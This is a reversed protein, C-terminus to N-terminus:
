LYLRVQPRLRLELPGTRAELTFRVPVAPVSQIPGSQNPWNLEVVRCLADHLNGTGAREGGTSVRFTHFGGRGRADRILRFWVRRDRGKLERGGGGGGLFSM